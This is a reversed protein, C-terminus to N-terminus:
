RRPCAAKRRRKGVMKFGTPVVRHWFYLKGDPGRVELTKRPRARTGIAVPAANFLQPCPAGTAVDTGPEQGQLMDVLGGIVSQGATAAVNGAAGLAVQGALGAPNFGLRSSQLAQQELLRRQADAAQRQARSEVFSLGINGLQGVLGGFDFGGTPAIPPTGVAGPLLTRAASPLGILSGAGLPIESRFPM